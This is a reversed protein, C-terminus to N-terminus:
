FRAPGPLDSSRRSDPVYGVAESTVVTGFSHGILHLPVSTGAAPSVLGLGVLLNFLADGAAEGWGSSSENSERAWDFLLVVEGTAALGPNPLISQDADFVGTFQGNSEVLDYDLLWATENPGNELDARTRVAEALPALSDGDSDSFQFGHTIITAGTVTQRRLRRLVVAVQEVTRTPHNTFNGGFVLYSEGADTTMNGAADGRAAGILLDDFGDGNVDGAGSVASGSGDSEDIGLLTFGNSGGLTFLDLMPTASWDSKGLVLYSEGAVSNANPTGILIDDFSDGNVDGVGSVSDSSHDFEDIGFLTFGNTGSLTDLGLTPTAAWDSKGFVVYSEGAGSNASPAGILIDDFGDGNVDGVGRVVNGSNDEPDIGFLTFGNTGDLAALELVPTASWDAKGFVVYSEGADAKTNGSADGNPAGILLDDFGDGNVDGAGSVSVGSLDHADIGFLTFGDTGNLTGLSLTPTSSWNPKGFVVYSEGAGSKANGAADGSYTGILLDDFGDRNLDGAVSVAWGSLDGGEVGFLTFGNTGNLTLLDLTPTASWDPKGFVVYSEGAFPKNNGEANRYPAGILLDDFGDGNVDGAGHDGRGGPYRSDGGLLTFGNTGNLTDLDLTPIASWDVKGFV